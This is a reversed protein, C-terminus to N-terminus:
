KCFLLLDILIYERPIFFYFQFNPINGSKLHDPAHIYMKCQWKEDEDKVCIWIGHHWCVALEMGNLDLSFNM